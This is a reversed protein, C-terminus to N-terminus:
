FLNIWDFIRGVLTRRQADSLPGSGSVNIRAEAIQSSLVTNNAQVDEPRVIGTLTIVQQDGAILVKKQGLVVLNGNPLTETVQASLTARVSGTEKITGGGEFSRASGAKISPLEGNRKLLDSYVFKDVSADVSQTRETKTSRDRSADVEEVILVTLVDGKRHATTDAVLGHRSGDPQWLSGDVVQPPAIELRVPEPAVVAAPQRCGSVVILLLIISVVRLM